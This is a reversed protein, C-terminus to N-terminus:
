RATGTGSTRGTPLILNNHVEVVGPTSTAIEGARAKAEQSDVFGSLQVVGNLAQVEVQTGKVVPDAYMATKIQTIIQKDKAYSAATSSGQTVACGNTLTVAGGLLAAALMLFGLEKKM